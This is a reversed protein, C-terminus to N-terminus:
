PLQLAPHKKLIKLVNNIRYLVDSAPIHIVELNLGRFYADRIDDYEIKTKHSGGDIEIIVMCNRCFFDVIYNGIIKQRDFDFGNWQKNKFQNWMLVEPLNKAKRLKRARDKLAPNYPLVYYGNKNLTNHKPKQVDM